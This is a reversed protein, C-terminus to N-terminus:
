MDLNSKMLDAGRWVKGVESSPVIRSSFQSMSPAQSDDTGGM